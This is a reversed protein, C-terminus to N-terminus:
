GAARSLLKKLENGDFFYKKNCYHCVLEAQGDKEIIDKIEEKGMSIIISELRERNCDCKFRLENGINFKVDTDGLISNLIDENIRFCM